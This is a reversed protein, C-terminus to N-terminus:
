INQSTIYKKQNCVVYILYFFFEQIKKVFNSSLIAKQKNMAVLYNEKYEVTHIEVQIFYKLDCNVKNLAIFNNNRANFYIIFIPFKLLSCNLKFESIIKIELIELKIYNEM